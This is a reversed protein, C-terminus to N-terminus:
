GQYPARLELEGGATDALVDYMGRPARPDRVGSGSQLHRRGDKPPAERPPAVHKRGQHQGGGASADDGGPVPGTAAPASGGLHRVAPTRVGAPAMAGVDGPRHHHSARRHPLLTGTYAHSLVPGMTDPRRPVDHKREPLARGQPRGDDMVITASHGEPASRRRQALAAAEDAARAELSTVAYPDVRLPGTGHASPRVDNGDPDTWRGFMTTSKVHPFQEPQVTERLPGARPDALVGLAVALAREAEHAHLDAKLPDNVAVSRSSAGGAVASQIPEFVQARWQQYTDVSRQAAAAGIAALRADITANVGDSAEMGHTVADLRALFRAEEEERSEVRPVVRAPAGRADEQSEGQQVGRPPVVGRAREPSHLRAGSAATAARSPAGADSAAEDGAAAATPDRVGGSGGSRSSKSAVFAPSRWPPAEATPAATSTRPTHNAWPPVDGGLAPDVTDSLLLAALDSASVLVRPPVPREAKAPVPVSPTPAADWGTPPHKRARATDSLLVPRNQM